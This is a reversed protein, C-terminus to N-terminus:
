RRRLMRDALAHFEAEGEPRLRSRRDVGDHLGRTECVPRATDGVDALHRGVIGLVAVTELIQEHAMVVAPVAGAPYGIDVGQIQLRAVDAVITDADIDVSM